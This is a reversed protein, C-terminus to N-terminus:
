ITFLLVARPLECALAHKKADYSCESTGMTVPKGEVIKDARLSYWHPKEAIKSIHYLSDEDHCGSERVQCVSEGRWDGTMASESDGSAASEASNSQAAGFPLIFAASAFLMVVKM